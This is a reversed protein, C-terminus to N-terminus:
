GGGDGDDAHDENDDIEHLANTGFHNKRRSSDVKGAAAEFQLFRGDGHGKAGRPYPHAGRRLAGLVLKPTNSQLHAFSCLGEKEAPQRDVLATM